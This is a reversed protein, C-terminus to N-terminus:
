YNQQRLMEYLIKNKLKLTEFKLRRRGNRFSEKLMYKTIAGLNSDLRRLQRCKDLWSSITNLAVQTKLGIM